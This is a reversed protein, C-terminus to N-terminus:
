EIVSGIYDACMAIQDNKLELNRNLEKEDKEKFVCEKKV